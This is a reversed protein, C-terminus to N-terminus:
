GRTSAARRKVTVELKVEGGPKLVVEAPTVAVDLVDSAETVAVTQLKVDFVGRGGGPFYIEQTPTCPRTITEQKGDFEVTATGTVEIQRASPRMRLPASCSCGRRSAPSITLPNVTL